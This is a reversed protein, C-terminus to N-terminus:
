NGRMGRGGQSRPEENKLYEFWDYDANANSAKGNGTAYLGVYVGTFGGVTESSLFKSDIRAIETAPDNGQAYSFSFTSREGKIILKVPGPKLAMDKSEHIVSGFRLRNVLVRKGESQKVILDFHVGDNLLITPASQM